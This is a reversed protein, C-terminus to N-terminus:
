QEREQSTFDSPGPHLLKNEIPDDGLPQEGRMQQHADLLIARTADDLLASVRTRAQLDRFAARADEPLAVSEDLNFSQTNMLVLMARYCENTWTRMARM